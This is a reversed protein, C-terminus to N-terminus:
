RRNLIKSGVGAVSVLDAQAGGNRDDMTVVMWGFAPAAAFRALDVSVPLNVRDGRDLGIFDGQSLAPHFADFGALGSTSDDGFGELSFTDVAYDFPGSSATLGFDSAAAFVVITSGNTPASVTWIDVLGGTSLDVVIGLVQGNPSGALVLGSDAAIVVFDPTGDRNTDVLVDVENNAASTWRGYTNVAFGLLRDSDPLGGFAGPLSQVGVARIDVERLGDNPDVLGWSYVDANGSHLGSNNLKITGNAVGGAVTFGSAPGAAVSSLSRPVVLYPVRLPYRGTGGRTPIATIAGEVVLVAETPLADAGPLDAMAARSMQIRVHIVRNGHAPVRVRNPTILVTAGLDDGVFHNTLSYTIPSGSTNTITFTKTESLSGTAPDYGYSLSAEGWGVIALAVTDVARRPRVVGSGNLRPDYDVILGSSAGATNMMAAKIRTPSWTPHAQVVLAAVGTTMPAAMSTGSLTQAGTGSGVFASSISVGPASIDPKLASDGERPGGSSFDAINKYTPNAIIGGPKLTASQGEAAILDAKPTKDTGIMPITFFSPSAGLFAPLAGPDTDDRNVVIVAKAGAAQALAGKDVFACVGRQIVAIDGATFGIYDAAACGLKLTSSSATIADITGTVPLPADNMDIAPIDGSTLSVIAAPFTPLADLAAASIVGTAAAPSGHVYANHGSNGASAIVVIGAKVANDSAVSSPEDPSPEGLPAGLSMNIVDVHAAVAANIADVTLDTSGLCGFVKFSYLTAKPAVGPGVKWTNASITSSNYPGTYTSGNALVGQGAATGAVHTGHGDGDDAPGCDLPDPDPTPTVSGDEGNADYGDGAFDYGGAVKTTPFGGDALTTPDAATYDAPNGSGGFDAHYYDLGTDIIAIKVGNGTFGTAGWTAPGGIYPIGITNDHSFMQIAHVAKVGPLKALKGVQRLNVRVKIGNYADQYQGLVRGGAAGISKRLANQTSKLARRASAEQSATLPTGAARANAARVVVPLATLELMVNGVKDALMGAHLRHDITPVAVRTAVQASQPTRAMTTAPIVAAVIMTAGFAASLLRRNMLRGKWAPAQDEV